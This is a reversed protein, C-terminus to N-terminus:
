RRVGMRAKRGNEEIRRRLDDRRLDKWQHENFDRWDDSGGRKAFGMFELILYIAVLWLCALTLGLAWSV